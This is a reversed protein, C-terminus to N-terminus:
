SLDKKDHGVEDARLCLLEGLIRAELPRLYLTVTRHSELSTDWESAEMVVFHGEIAVDAIDASVGEDLGNRSRTSM